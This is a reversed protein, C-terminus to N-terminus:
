SSFRHPDLHTPTDGAQWSCQVLWGAKEGTLRAHLRFPLARFVGARRGCMRQTSTHMYLWAPMDDPVDISRARAKKSVEGAEQVHLAVCASGQKDCKM